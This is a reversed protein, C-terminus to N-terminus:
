QAMIKHMVPLENNELFLICDVNQYKFSIIDKTQGTLNLGTKKNPIEVFGGKKDNLLIHGYSGDVRCFQPLLDFMNGAAIIDPYGDRNVDMLRIANVSSLQITLPLQQIKFGGKGDNLAVCSSLYNVKKVKAKKIEDGFLEQVTKKAFDMFVPVDKEGVTKTFIKDLNGNQDFDSIWLKVPNKFDAKLYFNDGVNGLILDMDGDMDVDSVAMSQWWGFLSELGTKIEVFRKENYSFVHPYM